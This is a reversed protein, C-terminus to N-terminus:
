PSSTACTTTSSWCRRARRRDSRGQATESLMAKSASPCSARRDRHLFLATDSSCGSRRTRRREQPHGVRAYKKLRAEEEDTLEKGTYVVIPLDRFRPQTKVQEVLRIGDDGPLVLDVVMCDFEGRSSRRWRRRPPACRRRGRRRRGRRGARHHEDRQHDDDEVLLLQRVKRDLFTSIHQFAGTSRRRASRSRSTPSRAWRPAAGRASTSALHRAGPHPAHAPQAEPSRARTWGDVCRCSSTSAHHRRAPARQGAGARHRRADAVVAKFGNERAMGLMIRAFKVDDEIILLVRDGPSSTSATTRSRGCCRRSGAGGAAHRRGALGLSARAATEVPPVELRRGRRGSEIALYREPLYLTFTSGEGPASEVHIEGGLLRAIERSISLGLGTGGYKRSTTGDAQQFAEFILKQKDKPSASAPTACRSARDRPGAACRRRQQLAHGTPARQM